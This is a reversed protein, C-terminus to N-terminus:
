APPKLEVSVIHLTNDGVNELSHPGLPEGWLVDGPAATVDDIRTDLLVTGVDDRRVFPSWSVVHHTAPWQHTHVPTREGPAIRTDLVRVRDNELLLRHQAPAAQLADLEPPWASPHDSVGDLLQRAKEEDDARVWLEAPGTIYNFGGIRGVGFLDQVHEGRVASEISEADLLSKAFGLLGADSSRLVSVLATEAREDLPAEGFGSPIPEGCQTCSDLPDSRYISKGCRSCRGLPPDPPPLHRRRLEARIIREGEETFEGLESAAQLLEEDSKAAWIDDAHAM